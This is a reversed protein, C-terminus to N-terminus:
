HLSSRSRDGPRAPSTSPFDDIQTHFDRLAALIPMHNGTRRGERALMQHRLEVLPRNKKAQALWKKERCVEVGWYGGDDDPWFISTGHWGSLCGRPAHSARAHFPMGSVFTDRIGPVARFVAVGDLAAPQSSPNRYAGGHQRRSARSLTIPPVHMWVASLMILDFALGLRNISTLDPLRDEFWRIRPDPHRRQAEVRM